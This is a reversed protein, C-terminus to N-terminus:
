SSKRSECPNDGAISAVWEKWANRADEECVGVSRPASSVFRIFDVRAGLCFLERGFVEERGIVDRAIKGTADERHAQRRLWPGFPERIDKEKKM